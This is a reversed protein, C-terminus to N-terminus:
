NKKKVFLVKKSKQFNGVPMLFNIAFKWFGGARCGGNRNWEKLLIAPFYNDRFIGFRFTAHCDGGSHTLWTARGTESNSQLVTDTYRYQLVSNEEESLNLKTNSPIETFAKINNRMLWVWENNCVNRHCNLEGESHKCYMECQKCIEKGLIHYNEFNFDRYRSSVSWGFIEYVDKDSLIFLYTEKVTSGYSKVSDFPEKTPLDDIVKVFASDKTFGFSQAMAVNSCLILCILLKMFHKILQRCSIKFLHSHFYGGVPIIGDTRVIKYGYCRYDEEM